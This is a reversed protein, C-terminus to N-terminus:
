PVLYGRVADEARARDLESLGLYPRAPITTAGGRGAQGGFQHIASYVLSSTIEVSRADARPTIESGLRGSEGILPRKGMVRRSGKASLRGSKTTNGKSQGLFALYTAQANPAWPRGDPATSTVFRAKTSDVLLEGLEAMLPRLNEIKASLAELGAIAPEDQWDIRIM